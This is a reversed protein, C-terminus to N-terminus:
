LASRAAPVAGDALREKEPNDKLKKKYSGIRIYEFGEFQTPQRHAREIELLVVRAGDVEVQRFVFALKPVLLRLLWSELEENGVKAADPRVTTGVIAHDGDRIGWVLYAHAKGALAAANSLASIYEGIERPQDNNEKFEVWETERPLKCLERM